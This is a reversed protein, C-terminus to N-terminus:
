PNIINGRQTTFVIYIQRGAKQPSPDRLHLLPKRKPKFQTQFVTSFKDALRTQQVVDVLRFIYM